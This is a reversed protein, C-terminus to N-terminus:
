RRQASEVLAVRERASEAILAPMLIDFAQEIAPLQRQLVPWATHLPNARSLRTGIGTLARAVVQPQRYGSLLDGPRAYDVFRRLSDPLAPGHEALLAFCYASFDELRGPGWAPWDRALLHDFSVDLMIGAYRRYPPEFRARLAQWEPQREIWSDMRRHLLVGLGVAGPWDQWQSGRLHDGLFSGLVWDDGPISVRAHALYNM